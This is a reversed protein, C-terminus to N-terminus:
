PSLACYLESGRGTELFKLHIILYLVFQDFEGLSSMEIILSTLVSRPLCLVTYYVSLARVPEPVLSSVGLDTDLGSKFLSDLGRSQIIVCNVHLLPHLADLVTTCMTFTQAVIQTSLTGSSKWRLVKLFMVYLVLLLLVAGASPLRSAQRGRSAQEQRIRLM